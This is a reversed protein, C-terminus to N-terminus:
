RPWVDLHVEKLLEQFKPEERLGDWTPDTRLSGLDAHVLFESKEEVAQELCEWVKQKQGLAAHIRALYYPQVYTARSLDTLQQLLNSAIAQDGMKAYACALLAVLDQKREVELGRELVEIAKPYDQKVIWCQGLLGVLFPHNPYRLLGQGIRGIADDYRRETYLMGAASHFYYVVTTPHEQEWKDQELRAENTRGLIRYAIAWSVKPNLKRLGELEKAFGEWDWDYLGKCHWMFYRAGPHTDDMRLVNQMHAKIQPKTQRHPRDGEENIVIWAAGVDAALFHPDLDLARGFAETAQTWGRKTGEDCLAYGQRYFRLAELNNTLKQHIMQQEVDTIEVRLASALRHIASTETEVIANTGGVFTESWLKRDGDTEYLSLEIRVQGPPTTAVRGTLAHRVNFSKGVECRLEDENRYVWGSKRPGVRVGDILALSDIFADTIRDRLDHEVRNTDTDRFPLVFISAKEMPAAPNQSSQRRALTTLVLIGVLVAAVALAAKAALKRVKEWWRRRQVSRGQQLLALEDHMARASPYRLRLDSECARLIVQNLGRLQADDSSQFHEPLAPYKQRDQGTVMEYFVKGLSYLDAQPSGPGEPAIFGVTGVFSRAEDVDAVLGIDALKPAGNAFIINSPKIDRHVLGQSHLHELASSLALAISLCEEPPLPGRQKLEHRLTRPVYTAASTLRSQDRGSESPASERGSSRPGPLPHDSAAHSCEVSRTGCEANADDALEMVYYFCGAEDHRGIQLIDILGEHTRSVPEFKQIGKFEREFPYDESFDQRHVVKVARLTGMVSQALWVEGYSGAGIRCILTHDPIAPPPRTSRNAGSAPTAM